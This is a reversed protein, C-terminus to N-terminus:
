QVAPPPVPEGARQARQEAEGYTGYFPANGDLWIYLRQRDEDPLQVQGAHNSDDLIRTLPSEDAGMRGPQTVTDGISRGLWSYWRVHPELSKYSRTYPGAPEGTLVLKSKDPGSSDDHCRTCHRDLVPQVLRPYSFPRTGDPGPEIVSAPRRSALTQRPGPSVNPPEHCGVCGRREGPQLYTVSRMGAVARGSQDVAQFYLPKRAPARFRASGDAEVPVTGLLMRAGAQRAYGILPQDATHTTKPLVQYVRLTRIPRSSPLPMLSWYVNALLFEGEDGLAPDLTSPIVPPAGRPALPMPDTACIGPERYLLELNGFRDFYYIGTETDRTVKSGWGPLPDFSFAVLYFDESLPWPSTYYSKPWDPAEPYCVEPTLVELPELTDEGTQPDLRTRLPDLLVLSGGVDAHHAGAVFLIKHSGPIARPQFCASIRKTYNGFLIRPNTGDPNTVWLGHFHAASRDVYDWRSYVIRGDDLVSPHWENTEHFSLTRVNEGSADMRHLTYTPVPEYDGGCRCFGGRRTSLFALRGDPLPCPNFDDDAGTTLQRVNRGDADVAFLHFSARGPSYYNLEEPVSSAPKLRLWHGGPGQKRDASRVEAFAFYVTKGDYAVAPTTCSGPSLRGATLDRTKLSRGPEELVHVGGGALGAYNYYYGVYEHLMQFIFRHRKVFVIPKAAVLPNALALSRTVSRIERYLALRAPEDLSEVRDAKQGLMRLAAAEERHPPMAGSADRHPEASMGVSRSPMGGSRALEQLLRQGRALADRIAAPDHPKRGRRHEQATWDAEVAARLAPEEAAKAQSALPGAPLALVLLVGWSCM